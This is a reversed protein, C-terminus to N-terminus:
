SLNPSAMKLYNYTKFGTSFDILSSRFKTLYQEDLLYKFENHKILIIILSDELINLESHLPIDESFLNSINDINPDIIHINSNIRKTIELSINVSPSERFDDVNAKYTLGCIFLNRYISQNLFINIIKDKVWKEKKKNIDRATHILKSDNPNKNIIFWPDIPLCHGGVGVGPSHINVRPHMNSLSIVDNIDISYKDCIISLENAYAINIDRFTNESLKVLEATKSDTPIINGSTFGSYLDIALSTSLESTGGVIRDNNIIEKLADGPLVREPCHAVHIENEILSRQKALIYNKVDNTTGVPITSEIIILNNKDIVSILSDVAIQLFSLDPQNFENLPTPVCIIFIDAQKPSSCAVFRKSNVANKLLSFLGPEQFSLKCNNLNSIHKQNIDVGIVDHGADAILLAIPLGVYGLGVVEVKM